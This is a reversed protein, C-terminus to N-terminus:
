LKRRWMASLFLSFTMEEERVIGRVFLLLLVFPFVVFPTLANRPFVLFNAFLSFLSVCSYEVIRTTRSRRFCRVRAKPVKTSVFVKEEEKEEETKRESAMTTKM